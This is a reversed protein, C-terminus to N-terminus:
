TPRAAICGMSEAAGLRDGLAHSIAISRGVLEEATALEGQNAHVNGLYCLLAYAMSKRDALTQCIAVSEELLHRATPYDGTDLALLGLRNLVQAVGWQDDFGSLDGARGLLM